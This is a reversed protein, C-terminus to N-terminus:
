NAIPRIMMQVFNMSELGIWTKWKIYNTVGDKYLGNLNSQYCKHFWWGSLWGLACNYDVSHDNDSDYTSFMMGVHSSLSDGADAAPGASYKGVSLLKYNESEDAIKFLSYRATRIENNSSKMYIYLEHPKENTLRHLKELGMFYNSDVRGFGKRYDTWSRNFNESADQRRQIVTW